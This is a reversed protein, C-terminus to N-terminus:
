APGDELVVVRGTLSELRIRYASLGDGSIDIEGGLISGNPFFIFQSAGDGLPEGGDVGTIKIQEPFAVKNGSSVEYSNESPDVVLRLVASESLARGRLNRAVAALGLVSQRLERRALVREMAPLVLASVLGMLTLVVLLEVLTFGNRIKSQRNEISDLIWFRFDLIRSGVPSMTITEMEEPCVM